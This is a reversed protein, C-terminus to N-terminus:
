FRNPTTSFEQLVTLIVLHKFSPALEEQVVPLLAARQRYVKLDGLNIAKNKGVWFKPYYDAAMEEAKGQGQGRGMGQGMMHRGGNMPQQMGMRPGSGGYPNMRQQQHGGFPGLGMMQPGMHGHQPYRQRAYM